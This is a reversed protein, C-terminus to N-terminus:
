KIIKNIKLLEITPEKIKNLHITKYKKMIVLGPKNGKKLDKVLAYDVDGVSQNSLVLALESAVELVKNTPNDSAIIIHAGPMNRVHLFTYKFNAFKFTLEDNQKDSKGYYIKTNDVDICHFEKKPKIQNKNKVKDKGLLQEKIEKLSTEDAYKLQTNIHKLHEKEDKIKNLELNQYEIQRKAKKYLNFFKEAARIHDNTDYSIPIYEKAYEPDSLLMNGYDKYILKDKADLLEQKIVDEKKNLIKERKTLYSYLSVYKEKLRRNIVNNLDDQAFKYYEDLSPNKNGKINDIKTPAVYEKKPVIRKVDYHTAFRILGNEDTIILNPHNSILEIYLYKTNRNLNNNVYSLTFRIVKDDNIQDIKLIYTDRLERRLIQSLGVDLTQFSEEISVLGLYPSDSNLSLLLKNKRYFSFSFLIDSSSVLTLNSIHNNILKDSLDKAIEKILLNTLKIPM